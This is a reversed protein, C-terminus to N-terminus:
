GLLEKNKQIYEKWVAERDKKHTNEYKETYEDHLQKLEDMLPTDNPVKGRRIRGYLKNYFKTFEQHIPHQFLKEKYTKRVGVESCTAATNKYIRSCYMQDSSHKTQFYGNCLKCKRIVMEDSMMISLGIHLFQSFSTIYYTQTDTDLLKESFLDFYSSWTPTNNGLINKLYDEDIPFDFTDMYFDSNNMIKCYSHYLAASTTSQVSANDAYPEILVSQTYERAQEYSSKLHLLEQFLVTIKASFQSVIEDYSCSKEAYLYLAHLLAHYHPYLYALVPHPDFCEKLIDLVSSAVDSFAKSDFNKIFNEIKNILRDKQMDPEIEFLHISSLLLDFTKDLTEKTETDYDLIELWNSLISRNAQLIEQRPNSNTDSYTLILSESYDSKQIRYVLPSFSLEQKITNISYLNM